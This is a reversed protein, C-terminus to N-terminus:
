RRGITIRCVDDAEAEVVIPVDVFRQIVAANTQTHATPSLTRFTGGGALAMPPLRIPAEGKFCPNM